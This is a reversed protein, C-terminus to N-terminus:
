RGNTRRLEVPQTWVSLSQDIHGNIEVVPINHNVEYTDYTNSIRTFQWQRASATLKRAYAIV